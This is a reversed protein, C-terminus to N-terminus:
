KLGYVSSIRKMRNLYETQYSRVGTKINYEEDVWIEGTDRNKKIKKYNDITGDGDYDTSREIPIQLVLGDDEIVQTIIDKGELILSGDKFNIEKWSFINNGIGKVTVTGKQELIKTLNNAYHQREQKAKFDCCTKGASL